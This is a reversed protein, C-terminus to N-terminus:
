EEDTVEPWGCWCSGTTQESWVHGNSCKYGRTTINSDHYHRRGHEDYFAHVLMDTTDVYADPYIRSKLGAKQCEPCFKLRGDM